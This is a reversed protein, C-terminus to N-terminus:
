RMRRAMYLDTRYPIVVEDHDRLLAGVEDLLRRRRASQLNAVWSWSAVQAIFGARDLTQAHSVQSHLPAEFLRSREFPLRWAGNGAPYGGAARRHHAVLQRFAELWPTDETTWTPTNWLLAVGGHETLVRAIQETAAAVEFWHFAEGVVVADVAADALPISEATGDLVTVGALGASIQARMAAVPEVAILGGVRKRLLRSLQGTGAALDLVKSAATLELYGVVRDIAAVPYSPRGRQYADAVAAFGSAARPDITM